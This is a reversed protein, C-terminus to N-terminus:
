CITSCDARTARSAASWHASSCRARPRPWGEGIGDAVDDAAPDPGVVVDVDGDFWALHVRQSRDQEYRQELQSTLKWPYIFPAHWAGGDDQVHPFTPPANLFGRAQIDGAYPAFWPAGLAAVFM